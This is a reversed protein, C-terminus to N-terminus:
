PNPFQPDVEDHKLLTWWSPRYEVLGWDVGDIASIEEWNLVHGEPDEASHLLHFTGDTNRVTFKWGDVTQFQVHTLARSSTPRVEASGNVLDNLLKRLADRVPALEPAPFKAFRDKEWHLFDVFPQITSDVDTKRRGQECEAQFIETMTALLKSSYDPKQMVPLYHFHMEKDHPHVWNCPSNCRWGQTELTSLMLRLAREEPRLYEEEDEPDGLNTLEDTM